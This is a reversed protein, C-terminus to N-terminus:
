ILRKLDEIAHKLEKKEFLVKYVQSTLQLKINNKEAYEHVAKCTMIGEAVMGHMEKNIQEFDYGKALLEGAKRNRSHKSACTAVLDGVGALGYFTKQKAGFHRGLLVMERLGYTIISGLANDGLGLAAIIGTAIATINKVAACIEVGIIDHHTYVKFYGTEFIKKLQKLDTDESAIVTATPIKRSVEEAHNPGSLAAIKVSVPLEEQLVRSMTKFSHNELGKAVNIVTSSDKIYKKIEKTKERLFQSPIATIILDSNNVSESIDNTSKLNKDLRINPLFLLNKGHKQISEVVEKERAWLIVEKDPNNEALLNALTTGWSGAGIIAIKM